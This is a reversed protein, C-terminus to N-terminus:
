DHTESGGGTSEHGVQRLTTSGNDSRRRPRFFVRAPGSFTISCRSGNSRLSGCLSVRPGRDSRTRECSSRDTGVSRLRSWWPGGLRLPAAPELTLDHQKWPTPLVRGGLARAAPLRYKWVAVLVRLSQTSDDSRRRPQLLCGPRTISRQVKRADVQRALIDYDCGLGCMRGVCFHKMCQQTVLM